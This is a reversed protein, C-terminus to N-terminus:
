RVVTYQTLIGIGRQKVKGGLVIDDYWYVLAGILWKGVMATHEPRVIINYWLAVEWLVMTGSYWLTMAGFCSM